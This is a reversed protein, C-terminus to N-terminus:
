NYRIGTEQIRHGRVGQDQQLMAEQSFGRPSLPLNIWSSSFNVNAPRQSPQLSNFTSLHLPFALDGDHLMQLVNELFIKSSLAM